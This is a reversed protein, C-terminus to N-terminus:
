FVENIVKKVMNDVDEFSHDYYNASVDEAISELEETLRDRISEDDPANKVESLDDVLDVCYNFIISKINECLDEKIAYFYAQQLVKCLDFNNREIAISGNAIAEELYEALFQTAGYIESCYIPIYSDANNYLCEEITDQSGQYYDVLSLRAGTFVDNIENDNSKYCTLDLNELQM